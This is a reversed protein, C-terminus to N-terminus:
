TAISSMFYAKSTQRNLPLGVTGASELVHDM